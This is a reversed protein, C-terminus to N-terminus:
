HSTEVYTKIRFKLNIRLFIVRHKKTNEREREIERERERQFCSTVSGIVLDKGILFAGTQFFNTKLIDCDCM